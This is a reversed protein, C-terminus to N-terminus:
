LGNILYTFVAESHKVNLSVLFFVAFSKQKRQEHFTSMQSFGKWGVHLSIIVPIYSIERPNYFYNFGAFSNSHIHSICSRSDFTQRLFNGVPSSLSFSPPRFVNIPSTKTQLHCAIHLSIGFATCNLLSLHTHTCTHSLSACLIRTCKLHPSTESLWATHSQLWRYLTHVHILAPSKAQCSFNYFIVSGGHHLCFCLIFISKILWRGVIRNPKSEQEKSMERSANRPNIKVAKIISQNIFNNSSTEYNQQQSMNENNPTWCWGQQYGITKTKIWIERKRSVFGITQDLHWLHFLWIKLTPTRNHLSLAYFFNGLNVM